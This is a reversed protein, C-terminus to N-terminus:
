KRNAEAVSDKVVTLLLEEPSVKLCRKIARRAAAASIGQPLRIEVRLPSVKNAM